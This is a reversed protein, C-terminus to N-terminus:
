RCRVRHGPPRITARCWQTSHLRITAQKPMRRPSLMTILTREDANMRKLGFTTLTAAQDFLRAVLVVLLAVVSLAVMLEILTFAQRRHFM